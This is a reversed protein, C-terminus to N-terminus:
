CNLQWAMKTYPKMRFYPIHDGPCMHCQSSSELEVDQLTFISSTFSTGSLVLLNRRSIIQVSRELEWISVWFYQVRIAILAVRAAWSRSSVVLPAIALCILLWIFALIGLLLFSTPYTAISCCILFSLMYGVSSCPSAGWSASWVWVERSSTNMQLCGWGKATIVKGFDVLSQSFWVSSILLM